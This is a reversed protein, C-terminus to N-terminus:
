AAKRAPAKNSVRGKENKAAFDLVLADSRTTVDTAASKERFEVLIALFIFAVASMGLLIGGATEFAYVADIVLM